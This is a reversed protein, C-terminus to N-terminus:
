LSGSESQSQPSQGSKEGDGSPAQNLRAIYRNEESHPVGLDM